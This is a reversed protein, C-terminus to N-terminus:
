LMHSVIRKGLPILFLKISSRFITKAMCVPFMNVPIPIMLESNGRYEGYAETLQNISQLGALVKVGLSRGFNVGDEIHQLYPLLKFEDCILFVNGEGRDQDSRGLAEKLALDFLLSYIPALTNGIALDYEVFLTRGGKERVFNRVSFTGHEAFVGNLIKRIGAQMEAYVGLAQDTNGDGIYSLVSSYEPYSEILEKIDVIDSEGFARKLEDNYFSSLKYEADNEGRKFMCLLVTAFLDRAANAFFPDKTKEIAERYVSWAIEHANQEISAVDWGDAVIEKFINWHASLSRYESSNGIILDKKEDFFRGYYDGKTDFVIMVDNDEMQNKLQDVIHYFVNSKGCGTGGILMLHKSLIDENLIINSSNNQFVGPVSVEGDSLSVIPNGSLM